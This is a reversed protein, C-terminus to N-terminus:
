DAVLNCEVSTVAERQVVFVFFHVIADALLGTRQGTAV